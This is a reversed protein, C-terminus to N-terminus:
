RPRPAADLLGKVEARLEPLLGYLITGPCDTSMFDRHGFIREVGLGYKGALHALLRVLAARAAPTLQETTFDGVLSIGVKGTNPICHAGVASEPRGRYVTGQPGLIFHYGLDIWHREQMHFKQIGRVTAAGAYSAQNPSWTHHVVLTDV